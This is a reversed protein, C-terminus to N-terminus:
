EKVFKMTTVKDHNSIRVIYTGASLEAVSVKESANAIEISKVEQGNVSFIAIRAGEVHNIFIEDVVPNPYIFITNTVDEIGSGSTFYGFETWGGSVSKDFKAYGYTNPSGSFKLAVYGTSLGQGSYTDLTVLNNSWVASSNCATWVNDLTAYEAVTYMQDASPVAVSGSIPELQVESPDYNPISFQSIGNVILNGNQPTIQVTSYNQAFAGFTCVLCLVMALLNKKM